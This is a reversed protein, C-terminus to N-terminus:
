YFLRRYQTSLSTWIHEPADSADSCSSLRSTFAVRCDVPRLDADTSSPVSRQFQGVLDVHKATEHRRPEPGATRAVGIGVSCSKEVASREPISRSSYRSTSPSTPRRSSPESLLARVNPADVCVRVARIGTVRIGTSVTTNSGRRRTRARMAPAGGARSPRRSEPKSRM